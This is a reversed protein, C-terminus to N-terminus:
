SVPSEEKFKFHFIPLDLEFQSDLFDLFGELLISTPTSPDWSITSDFRIWTPTQQMALFSREFGMCDMMEFRVVKLSRWIVVKSCFTIMLLGISSQGFTSTRM